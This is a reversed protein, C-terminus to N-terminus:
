EHGTRVERRAAHDLAADADEARVLGAAARDRHAADGVDLLDALIALRDDDGLQRVLDVLRPPDLLGRVHDALLLELADAVDAVLRIAVADAHHELELAVRAILDHERVQELVGLELG